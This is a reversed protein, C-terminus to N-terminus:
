TQNVITDRIQFMDGEMRVMNQNLGDMRKAMEVMKLNIQHRANDVLDDQAQLVNARMTEIATRYNELRETTDSYVHDLQESFGSIVAKYQTEAQGRVEDFSTQFSDRMIKFRN